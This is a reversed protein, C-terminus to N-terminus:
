SPATISGWSSRSLGSTMLAECSDRRADTATTSSATAASAARRLAIVANSDSRASCFAKPLVTALAGFSSFAASTCCAWASEARTFSAWAVTVAASSVKLETTRAM